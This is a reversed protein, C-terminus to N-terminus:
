VGGLEWYLLGFAIADYLGHALAPVALVRTREYVTGLVLSLGFVVVISGAVAAAPAGSAAYAPVHLAAFLASAAVVAGARTFPGVMPKQVLTRYVLEEGPGTFLLAAPIMALLFGTGHERADTVIGHASRPVGLAEFVLHIGQAAAFLAVGTGVALAVQRGSPVDLDLFGFSRGTHRLYFYAVTTGALGTAVQAMPNAVGPTLAVGASRLLDRLLISWALTAVFAVVAVYTGRLTQGLRSRDSGGM